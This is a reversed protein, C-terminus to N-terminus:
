FASVHVGIEDAIVRLPQESHSAALKASSRKFEETYQTVKRKSM